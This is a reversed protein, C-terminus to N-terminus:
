KFILSPLTEPKEINEYLFSSYLNGHDWLCLSLIYNAKLKPLDTFCETLRKKWVSKLWSRQRKQRFRPAYSDATETRVRSDGVLHVTTCLFLTGIQERRTFSNPFGFEIRDGFSLKRASSLKPNWWIFLIGVGFM